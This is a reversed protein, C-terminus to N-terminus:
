GEHLYAHAIGQHLEHGQHENNIMECCDMLTKICAVLDQPDEGLRAIIDELEGLQVHTNVNHTMGHQIKNLFASAKAKTAHWEQEDGTPTWQAYMELSKTGLTAIVYWLNDESNTAICNLLWSELICWFISFSHCADKSDWNYIPLSIPTTRATLASAITDATVQTSQTILQQPTPETAMDWILFCPPVFVGIDHFGDTLVLDFKCLVKRFTDALQLYCWWMPLLM